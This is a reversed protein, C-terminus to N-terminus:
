WRPAMSDENKSQDQDDSPRHHSSRAAWRGKDGTELGKKEPFRRVVV